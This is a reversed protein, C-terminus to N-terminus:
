GEEENIGEEPEAPPELPPNSMPDTPPQSPIRSIKTKTERKLAKDSPVFRVQTTVEFSIQTLLKAMEDALNTHELFLRVERSVVGLAAHKTEDVQSMIHAVIEKPLKLDGVINKIRGERMFSEFGRKIGEPVVKEFISSEEDPEESPRRKPRDSDRREDNM